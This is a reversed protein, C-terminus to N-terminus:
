QQNYEAFSPAPTSLPSESLRLRVFDLASNAIAFVNDSQVSELTISQLQNTDANYHYLGYGYDQLLNVIDQKRYGHNVGNLLELIWVHPRQQQLLYKAGKLALIEAGEIDMKALTLHNLNENQLETDLTSSAIQLSEATTNTTNTTIFATSDSKTNNSITVSGVSDAIAISYPKVQTLNNLNINEELRRYNTPLAEFSFISGSKIKSAALLTYIGINAGIDLFSDEERLYRLVFNMEHYDYIGCYIAASASQSDPYCRLKLNQLLQIDLYRHTIRKYLQWGFFKSLSLFQKQRNNPHVIIYRIIKNILLNNEM